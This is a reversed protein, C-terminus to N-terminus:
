GFCTSASAAGSDGAAHRRTASSSRPGDEDRAGGNMRQRSSRRPMCRAVSAQRTCGAAWAPARLGGAAREAHVDAPLLRFAIPQQDVQARMAALPPRSKRSATAPQCRACPRLDGVWQLDARGRAWCEARARLVHRDGTVSPRRRAGGSAGAQDLSSPAMGLADRAVRAAADTSRDDSASARESPLAWRDRVRRARAGPSSWCPWSTAQPTFLM